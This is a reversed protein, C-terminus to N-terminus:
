RLPGPLPWLRDVDAHQTLGMAERQVILNWRQRAAERRVRAHEAVRAEREPGSLAAFGAELRALEAILAELQHAVRRLSGAKERQLEVEVALPGLPNRRVM